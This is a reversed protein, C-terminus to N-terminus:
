ESSKVYFVSSLSGPMLFAGWQPAPSTIYSLRRAQTMFSYVNNLLPVCGPRSHQRESREPEAQASHAVNLKHRM